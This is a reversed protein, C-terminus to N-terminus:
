AISPSNADIGIAPHLALHAIAAEWAGLENRSPALNLERAHAAESLVSWLFHVERALEENGQLYERLCLLQARTTAELMEPERKRWLEYLLSELAQRQLLAAARTWSRHDPGKAQEALLRSQELLQTALHQPAQTTPETMPHRDPHLRGPAAADNVFGIEVASAGGHAGKNCAQAIDAYRKKKSNLRGLVDGARDADDFLALALRELLKGNRDLQDEIDRHRDGAELRRRRYTENCASEIALRCIGPIVRDRVHHPVHDSLALARADDLHREPPALGPELTVKSNPDRHVEQITADIRLRRVAEPLRNDHTFVVVQRHQAVTELTRALGDVRAPDMAQVPDDIFLFRFPSEEMTARPLFLCLALANLEGQSMVSLAAGPTDDVTIDIAVNRTTTKGKFQVDELQVNSHTRLQNWHSQVQDKIPAFRENRLTTATERLWAEAAKLAKVTPKSAEAKRANALWPTLRDAVPRWTDQRETYTATAQTTIEATAQALPAAHAEAQALLDPLATDKNTASTAWAQWTQHLDTLQAADLLQRDLAAQLISPPAGPHARLAREANTLRQRSANVTAAQQELQEIETATTARWEATLKSETGCVPCDQDAAGDAHAEDYHGTDYFDTAQRLLTALRHAQEADTGALGEAEELAERLEAAQANVTEADPATLAALQRLLELDSDDGLPASGLVADVDDLKWTRGQLAAFAQTAREDPPDAQTLEDLMPLLSDLEKKATKPLTELALRAAKLREAAEPLDQLGLLSSLADFLKSPGDELMSALENYSLFPRFTALPTDWGLDTVSALDGSPCSVSTALHDLDADTPWRRRIVTPGKQGEILLKAELATEGPFHLNRWGDKWHKGKRSSWRPNDGTLLLELGEAFSSKGSGNRGVILTLGPGPTLSLTAKEGIGRFGQVSIQEVYAVAPDADEDSTAPEPRELTASGLDTLAGELENLLAALLLDRTPDDLKPDADARNLVEDVLRDVHGEDRSNGM